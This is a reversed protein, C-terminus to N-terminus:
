IDYFEGEEDNLSITEKIFVRSGLKESVPSKQSCGTEGSTETRFIEPLNGHPIKEQYNEYELINM